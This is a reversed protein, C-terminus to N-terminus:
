AFATDGEESKWTESDLAPAGGAQNCHHLSSQRWIVGSLPKEGSFPQLMRCKLSLSEYM